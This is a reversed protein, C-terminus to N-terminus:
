DDDDFHSVVGTPAYSKTNLATEYITEMIDWRPPVYECTWMSTDKVTNVGIVRYGHRKLTDLVVYPPQSTEYTIYRSGGDSLLSAELEKMPQHLGHRRKYFSPNEPNDEEAFDIFTLTGLFTKYPREVNM